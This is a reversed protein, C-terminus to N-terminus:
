FLKEIPSHKKHSKTIEDSFLAVYRKTMELTTHGLIRQLTFADGGSAVFMRAFTHRATHPSCRVNTIGAIRGYIRFRNQVQRISIPENDINVFLFDHELKGRLSLYKRLQGRVTTQFPVLRENIGKPDQVRLVGDEFRIDDIRVNVLEKVRLGTEFLLLLLTYDRVGTFTMQDPAGLIALVQQRTFTQVVSRKQRVLQVSAMPNDMIYRERELFNFFSRAARLRANITTEKKGADMMPLIVAEKIHEAMIKTPDTPAKGAVLTKRLTELENRYYKVTHESLNRVRCDRLFSDRALDWDDLLEADVQKPNVDMTLRNRRRPM